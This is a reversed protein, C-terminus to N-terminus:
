SLSYQRNNADTAIFACTGTSIVTDGTVNYQISTAVVSGSATSKTGSWEYSESEEYSVNLVADIRISSNVPFSFVYNITQSANTTTEEFSRSIQLSGNLYVNVTMSVKAISWTNITQSWSGNQITFSNRQAQGSYSISISGSAYTASSLTSITYSGSRSGSQVGSASLLTYNLPVTASAGSLLATYVQVNFGSTSINIPRCVVKVNASNYGSVNTQVSLPICIVSPVTDWAANFNIRQGNSAEGTIFRGIMSYAIGNKDKFALGSSDLLVFNGNSMTCRLGEYSLKTAGGVITLSGGLTIEETALKSTSISGAAIKESIIAGALIKDATIANTAIKEATVAEANLKDTTIASAHIKDATVANTVIKDATITNDAILASDVQSKIKVTISDSWEGSGMSDYFRYKIIFTGSAAYFSFTNISSTYSQVEQTANDTFSWEIGSSDTPILDGTVSIGLLLQESTPATPKAPTPNSYQKTFPLSYTGFINRVYLYVNGARNSPEVDSSLSQTVDLLGTYQGTNTDERLEYYDFYDQNNVSTWKWEPKGGVWTVTFQDPLSPTIVEGVILISETPAADFDATAENDGITVVKIYYTNAGEVGQLTYSTVNSIGAYTFSGSNGKRYWIQAGKYNDIGTTLWSVYIDNQPYGLSDTSHQESLTITNCQLPKTAGEDIAKTVDTSFDNLANKLKAVFTSGDGSISNPLKKISTNNITTDAM